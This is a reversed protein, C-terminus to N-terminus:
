LDGPGPLRRAAGGAPPHHRRELLPHRLRAPEPRAPLQQGLLEVGPRQPPALRVGEGPRQRRPLRRAALPHPGGRGGSRRSCGSRRSRRPTSGPSWSRRPTSSSRARRPSTASCARWRSRRGRVHRGRQRRRQRHDRVRGRDGGQVRRRLHRPELRAARRHPQALQGRLLARGRRGPARHPKPRARHRLHLVQQDAAPHRRATTRVDDRRRAHVPHARVGRQPARGTGPHRRHQRRRHLTPHRGDGAHRRQPPRRLGHPSPRDLLSRGRTEVAKALASPNGLLTNTPAVAETLLSVAFRARERSKPDLEVEDVMDLIAKTEVLYAQLLRRYIPNDNWASHAFRKDRPEPAVDSRGVLVEILQSLAGLTTAAVVGPEVAMRQLLRGLAASAQRRNLGVLPNAGLVVPDTADFPGSTTTPSDAPPATTPM